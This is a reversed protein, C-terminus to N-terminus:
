THSSTYNNMSDIRDKDSAGVISVLSVFVFFAVIVFRSIKKM